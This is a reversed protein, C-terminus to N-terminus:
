LRSTRRSGETWQLPVEPIRSSRAEVRRVPLPRPQRERVRRHRWSRDERRRQSQVSRPFIQDRQSRRRRPIGQVGRAFASRGGRRECLHDFLPRPRDAEGAAVQALNATRFPRSASKGYSAARAGWIDTTDNARFAPKVASGKYAKAENLLELNSASTLMIDLLDQQIIQTIQDVFEARTRFRVVSGDPARIPGTGPIPNSM